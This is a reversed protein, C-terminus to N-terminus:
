GRSNVTGRAPPGAGSRWRSELLSIVAVNTILWSVVADIEHLTRDDLTIDIGTLLDDLQEM